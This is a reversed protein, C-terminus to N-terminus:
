KKAEGAPEIGFIKTLQTIEFTYRVPQTPNEIRLSHNSKRLLRLAEVLTAVGSSDIFPVGALDVVVEAPKEGILRHLIGRLATAAHMDIEGELYLRARKGDREIRHSM